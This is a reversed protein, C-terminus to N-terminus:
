EYRYYVCNGSEPLKKPADIRFPQYKFTIREFESQSCDAMMETLACEGAETNQEDFPGDYYFTLEVLDNHSDVFVARVNPHIHGTLASQAELLLRRISDSM